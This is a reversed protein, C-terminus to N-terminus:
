GKKELADIRAQALSLDRTRTRLRQLLMGIIGRAIEIRDDMLEYFPEQELQLLQTPQTTRITATRAEHDLIAMEGFVEREGLRTFVTEEDSAEVEGEVIIYMSDGPEDKEFIITGSPEEREKILRAIEVLLEDPTNSFIDVSKLIMVKEITLLMQKDGNPVLERAGEVSNPNSSPLVNLSTQAWFATEQVLEDVTSAAVTSVAENLKRTGANSSCLITVGVYLAQAKVWPPVWAPPESIIACLRECPELAPQPYHTALRGLTQKPTQNDLLPLLKQKLPNPVFLDISELAYAHQEDTVSHAIASALGLARQAKIVMQADYIFTLLLLLRRKQDVLMSRLMAGLTSYAATEELNVISALTWAAHAIEAEIQNTVHLRESETTAQYQCQHLANLIQSRVILDPLENDPLDSHLDSYPLLHPILQSSRFRSCIRALQFLVPYNQRANELAFPLYALTKTDSAVLASHAVSRTSSDTLAQIMAPLLSNHKLEGAAILANRRVSVDDDRLLKLLSRYLGATGSEGIVEAARRREDASTANIMGSLQEAVAVIGEIEGSRLLGVMISQRQAPDPSDLYGTLEDMSEPTSLAALTRLARQRVAPSADNQFREQIAANMDTQESREMRALTDLRVTDSPHALLDPLARAYVDQDVEELVNLAYIVAGPHSDDLAERIIGLSARDLQFEANGQVIRQNLAQQVQKPYARGLLITAVAWGGLIPLLIYALQLMDLQLINTFLLLLAGAIGISAPTIIGDVVTQTATRQEAPLPQYLLNAATNDSADLVQRALNTLVVVVFLLLIWTSLLTSTLIFFLTGIILTFPTILIVTRVGYRTLLRSSLFLQILVTLGAAIGSFLGLFSALQEEDPIQESVTIYFINDIFYAGLGVLTYMVFILIIYPNALFRPKAREIADSYGASSEGTTTSSSPEASKRTIFFLILLAISSTAVAIWLLNRVGLQPVVIPIMLGMFIGGFHQGSSLLGFLRKAQQLNFLRGLLNWFGTDMLTDLLGYWIPLSFILWRSNSVGLGLRLVVLALIIFALNGILQQRFTLREGVKLYVLTALPVFVSVGIYVYPIQQAVFENLFLTYASTLFLINAMYAFIAYLLVLAVLKGEGDHINFISSLKTSPNM